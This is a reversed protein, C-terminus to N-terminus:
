VLEQVVIDKQNNIIRYITRWKLRDTKEAVMQPSWGRDELADKIVAAMAANAPGRPADEAVSAGRGINAMHDMTFEFHCSQWRKVGTGGYSDLVRTLPVPVPGSPAGRRRWLM